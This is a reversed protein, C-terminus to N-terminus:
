GGPEAKARGGSVINLMLLALGAVTIWDCIAGFRSNEYKITVEGSKDTRVSVFGNPSIGVPLGTVAGDPQKLTAAYGMYYIFPAEAEVVGNAVRLDFSVNAGWRIPYGAEASGKVIRVYRDREHVYKKNSYLVSPLYEGGSTGIIFGQNLEAERISLDSFDPRYDATIFPYVYGIVAMAMIMTSARKWRYRDLSSFALAGYACLFFSAFSLLRWPYQIYLFVAPAVKWPFVSTTMIAAVFGLFIFPGVFDRNSKRGAIIALLAALVIHTGLPSPMEEEDSRDLPLSQEFNVARSFLQGVRTTQSYVMEGSPKFRGFVAYDGNAKHEYLPGIYFASILGAVIGGALLLPISRRNALIARFQFVCFLCGFFVAYLATINHTLALSALALAFPWFKGKENYIIEHIGYFLAPILVFTASEAYANRIYIDVLRYPASAYLLAAMVSVSRNQTVKMMFGYMSVGALFITLFQFVKVSTLASLGTRYILWTLDYSLPPYFISWGYGFGNSLNPLVRPPFQGTDIALGTGVVRYFPFFEEHSFFYGGHFLPISLVLSFGLILLADFAMEGRVFGAVSSVFFLTVDVVAKRVAAISLLVIWGATLLAVEGISVVQYMKVNEFAVWSGSVNKVTIARKEGSSEDRPLTFTLSSRKGRTKWENSPRGTGKPVSLRAIKEGEMYVDLVPPASEHSDLLNIIVRTEGAFARSFTFEKPEAGAWADMPGPLQRPIVRFGPPITVSQRDRWFGSNTMGGDTMYSVPRFVKLAAHVSGAAICAFLASVLLRKM